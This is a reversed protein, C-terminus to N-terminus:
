AGAAGRRRPTLYGLDAIRRLSAAVDAPTEARLLGTIPVTVNVITTGEGGGGAPVAAPTGGGGGGMFRRFSEAVDPPLVMEGAHLYAPGERTEWAGSQFQPIFQGFFGGVNGAVDGVFGVAGAAADKIGGFIGSVTDWVGRAVDAIGGIVGKIVGVAGSVVGKVAGWAASAAGSVGNWVARAAGGLAGFIGRIVGAVGSIIAQIGGWVASVIGAVGDFIARAAGGIAGFIGGLVQGAGQVIGSVAGWVASAAGSVGNWITSLFGVFIRIPATIIEFAAGVVGALVDLASGAAAPAGDFISSVIDILFRIPALIVDVAASIVTGVAQFAAGFIGGLFDGLGALADGIAGIVSGIFGFVADRIEPNSLLLAIGAVIAGILLIPWAAALLPMAASFLGAIGSMLGSVAGGLMPVVATFAGGLGKALSPLVKGGLAGLAGGLLRSPKLLGTMAPSLQNFAFLVPGFSSAFPGGVDQMFTQFGAFLRKGAEVPSEMKIAAQEAATGTADFMEETTARFADANEGTANLAFQYAEVSGLAMAFGSESEGVMKSLEQLAFSAGDSGAIASLKEVDSNALGLEKQMERLANPFEDESVGALIALADGNDAFSQRLTEMASALGETRALEAFNVGTQQQIANLRENPTLLASIAARMQTSAQAAPVGKATLQAYGASVEELSVGASAAIPAINAISAGIEDATVKGKQIALAFVDTIKGADSAQLGYANMASTVIDAAGATTGLGGIALNTSAALVGMADEAAVGASVLDYLGGTLDTTSQGSTRSLEQVADTLGAIDADPVVTKVNAMEDALTAASDTAASFAYGAASGIPVLARGVAPGVRSFAGSIGTASKQGQSEVGQLGRQADTVNARARVELDAVTIPM